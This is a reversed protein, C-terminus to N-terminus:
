TCFYKLLLICFILIYCRVVYKEEREVIRLATVVATPDRRATNTMRKMVMWVQKGLEEGLGAVEAYYANVSQVTVCLKRKKSTM